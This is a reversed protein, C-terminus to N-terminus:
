DLSSGTVLVLLLCPNICLFRRLNFLRFTASIGDSSINFIRLKFQRDESYRDLYIPFHRWTSKVISTTSEFKLNCSKLRCILKLVSEARGEAREKLFEEFYTINLINSYFFIFIIIFPLKNRRTLTLFRIQWSHSPFLDFGM